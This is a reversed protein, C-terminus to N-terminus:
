EANTLLVYFISGLLVIFVILSLGTMKRYSLINEIRARIRAGGFASVFLSTKQRSELLSIAYEKAGGDGLKALVREDCALEIDALFLKFFVWAFPNFWHVAVIAFASIRWLNDGRKIHMREHLVVLDVDKEKYALPLIIRPNIIGYVAPYTVKESFYINDKFHSAAKNENITAFYTIALVLLIVIAVIIWIVSAIDFVKELVNVKYTIPSYTDAAQVINMMSIRDNENPEYVVVTRTAVKSLFTMLSYPSNVGVPLTMRLFPIIWLFVTIRRPIKKIQRIIMVLVGTLTAIISMNFIWYFVEQLM